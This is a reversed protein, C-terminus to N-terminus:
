TGNRLIRQLQRLPLRDSHCAASPRTNTATRGSGGTPLFSCERCHARSAAPKKLIGRWSFVALKREFSPLKTCKTSLPSVKTRRTEGALVEVRLRLAPRGAFGRSPRTGVLPRSPGGRRLSPPASAARRCSALYLSLRRRSCRSASLSGTGTVEAARQPRPMCGPVAGSVRAGRPAPRVPLMLQWHTGAQTVAPGLGPGGPGGV